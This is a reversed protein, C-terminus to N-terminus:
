LMNRVSRAVEGLSRDSTADGVAKFKWEGNRLYLYGMVMAVKGAYQPDKAVNYRAVVEGARAPSGEYLKVTAHPVTAFDQGRFSVLVLAIKAVNAPAKTLDITITENDQGDDGGVDGERDDGSHNIFGSALRSRLQGFYVTDLPNNDADFVIASGDLDVAEAKGGFGMFGKKEIAGWNLGVSFHTLKSGDGKTLVINEGKTLVIGQSM